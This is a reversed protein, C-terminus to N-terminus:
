TYKQGLMQFSVLSKPFFAPKKQMKNNINNRLEIEKM